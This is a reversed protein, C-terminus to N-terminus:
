QWMVSACVGVNAFHTVSPYVARICARAARQCVVSRPNAVTASLACKLFFQSFLALFGISRKMSIGSQSGSLPSSNHLSRGIAKSVSLAATWFDKSFLFIALFMVM